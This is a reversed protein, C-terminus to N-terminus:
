GGEGGLFVARVLDDRRALDHASGEFQIRGKEMFVARDAFALAVNLSQEVVIMTQGRAKLDQVVGLLEEVVLPALGLSLEDILLIEPEHVLAMALALMQQQGGSLDRAPMSRRGELAPFMALVRDIRAQREARTIKTTLLSAHLNQTITLEPFVGAGGRLQVIGQRFRIEADVYTLTRGNLRIVGRDPIGLGSIARLLTSKGAGNTGLLALVEGREVEFGVDFLVQVPGYSYDLNHVQLVPIDDPHASMRHLESQEELLEEVALSVDRKLFRSGYIFLSGGIAGALPAVITLATREGHADSLAGALIGGFFGGMLFLFVPVLAFAQTRMRYPAVAGVIPGVSVFASSTCAGALAVGLLLFFPEKMRLAVLMILGYAVIFSGALRVVLVPDKRFLRDYVIGSVPIAVLSALSTLSLMWGRTYAEYGYTDELLLGLQIPVAILAFGLVGIGVCIYYFTKIKKMRAYATSMSVPLEVRDESPTIVEGLVLEQEYRGRPPERLLALALVALLLPPIALCLYTWRWGESGGATDAIYGALFPGALLGIPQSLWYLSYARGRGQIPYTDTLLSAFVPVSYAQGFGIGIRTCFLQFPNVILGNLATAVAWGITAIWVIRVRSMRDALWALPVAGLVLAVGGFASIAILTTDSIDLTDQIDPALVGGAARELQEAITILGLVIVMSAGGARLTERLGMQAQGVGPLLDDPLITVASRAAQDEQRRAEEALVAGALAAPDNEQALDTGTAAVPPEDTV